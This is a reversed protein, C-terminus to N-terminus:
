KLKCPIENYLVFLTTFSDCEAREDGSGNLELGSGELLIALM